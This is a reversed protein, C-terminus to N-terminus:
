HVASTKNRDGGPNGTQSFNRIKREDRAEQRLEKLEDRIEQQMSVYEEESLVEEIGRYNEVADEWSTRKIRKWVNEWGHETYPDPIFDPEVHIYDGNNRNKWEEIGQAIQEKSLTTDVVEAKANEYYRKVRPLKGRGSAKRGTHRDQKINGGREFTDRAKAKESDELPIPPSFSEPQRATFNKM